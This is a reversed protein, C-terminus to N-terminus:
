DMSGSGAWTDDLDQSMLRELGERQCVAPIKHEECLKHVHDLM